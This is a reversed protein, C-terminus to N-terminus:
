AFKWTYGGATKTLGSLAHSISGRNIRLVNSAEAQSKFKQNLEICIVPKSIEKRGPICHSHKINESYSCWELNEIRNDTKVGNKHNICPSNDPNEIFTEAVLRHVLIPHRKGYMSLWVIYYNSNQLRPQIIKGKMTRVYYHKHSKQAIERHLSRINGRNSAQYYGEYGPIDKWTENLHDRYLEM